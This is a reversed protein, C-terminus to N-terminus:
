RHKLATLSVCPGHAHAPDDFQIDIHAFGAHKLAGLVGDLELWNSYAETGGYFKGIRLAPTYERRHLMYTFGDTVTQKPAFERALAPLAAVRSREYYHTWLYLRPAIASLKGILGVPDAMHYLVGSAIVADVPEPKSNLYQVFDGFLFDAHQLKLLEKAILCKLFASPNAEIATIRAAGARELMYTHGAEMPGLELVRKGAMGGLMKIAWEIKGDQFASSKGARLGDFPPPLACEWEGKFVDIMNQPTPANRTLTTELKLWRMLARKAAHRIKM